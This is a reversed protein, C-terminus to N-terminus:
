RQEFHPSKGNLLARATTILDSALLGRQGYRSSEIDASCAHLAAALEIALTHDKLQAMLGGLLGSLVDGMGGSAMGANGYPCLKITRTTSAILSGSGKLILQGQTLNLLCNVSALRDAEIEKTNTNLLRAAEGPHPTYVRLTKAKDGALDLWRPHRALLNLADADLVMPKAYSLATKLMSESWKSQGLGPGIVIVTAKDLLPHLDKEHACQKVMVEPQRVLLASMHEPKTAVSILGAGMRAAAQAALLIAGGFGSDGGILLVHGNAGKHADARRPPVQSLLTPMDLRQALPKVEQFAPKPIALDSYHIDGCFHRGTGTFMGFKLAVFTATCDAEIACGLAQGTNSCLGSPIDLAIVPLPSRNCAQIADAYHPAVNRRAEANGSGASLGTGLLADVLIGHAPARTKSHTDDIDDAQAAYAWSELLFPQCDVNQECAFSYARQADGSLKGPESVYLVRSEIGRKQALGALLYGDGANNGSGCLVAIHQTDPWHKLLVRLAFRAAREMLKYGDIGLSNIAHQDIARVSKADFLDHPLGSTDM